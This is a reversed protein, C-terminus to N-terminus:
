THPPERDPDGEKIDWCQFMILIKCVTWLPLTVEWFGDQVNWVCIVRQWSFIRCLQLNRMRLSLLLSIGPSPSVPQGVSAKALRATSIKKFLLRLFHIRKWFSHYNTQARTGLCAARLSFDVVRPQFTWLVLNLELNLVRKLTLHWTGINITDKLCFWTDELYMLSWM